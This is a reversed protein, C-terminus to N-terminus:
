GFYLERNVIPEFIYETELLNFFNPVLIIKSVQNLGAM